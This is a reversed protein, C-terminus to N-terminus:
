KLGRNINKCFEQLSEKGVKVLLDNLDGQKDKLLVSVYPSIELLAKKLRIAADLGPRDRDVIICFRKYTLAFNLWPGEKFNGVGGPSVIDYNGKITALTLAELEGEVIVLNDKSVDKRAVFLPKQHGRPCLYKPGDGPFFKRRKYYNGEPWVIYFSDGDIPLVLGRVSGTPLLRIRELESKLDTPPAAVTPRVDGLESLPIVGCGGFCYGFQEYVVVSPTKEKHRPCFVRQM